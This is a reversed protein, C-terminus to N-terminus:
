EARAMAEDFDKSGKWIENKYPNTKTAFAKKCIAALVLVNIALALVAIVGQAKPEATIGMKAIAQQVEPGNNAIAPNNYIAMSADYLAQAGTGDQPAGGYVSPLVSFPTTLQFPVVQAFM